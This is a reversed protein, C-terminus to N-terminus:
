RLAQIAEKLSSVEKSQGSVGNTVTYDLHRPMISKDPTLTKTKEVLMQETFRRSELIKDDDNESSGVKGFKDFCAKKVESIILARDTEKVAGLYRLIARQSGTPHRLYNHATKEDVFETKGNVEFLYLYM